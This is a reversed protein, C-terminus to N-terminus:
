RIASYDPEVEQETNRYKLPHNVHYWTTTISGDNQRFCYVGNDRFVRAQVSPKSVGTFRRVEEPTLDQQQQQQQQM